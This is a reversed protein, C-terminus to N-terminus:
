VLPYRIDEFQGNVSSRYLGDICLLVPLASAIPIKYPIGECVWARFAELSAAMADVAVSFATAEPPQVGLWEIGERSDDFIATGDEGYIEIRVPQQPHAAMSSCLEIYRGATTRLIGMSFDEVEIRGQFKLRDTVGFGEAVSDPLLAQLVIDLYHSAQTILTGGGAKAISTHWASSSFYDWEREWPVNIRAYRFAGLYGQRVVRILADLAPDYRRQYNIGVKVTNGKLSEVLAVASTASETIPKECLVPLDYRVAKRIMDDHLFHPTAIYIADLSAEALLIDYDLYIQQVDLAQALRRANAESVDCCAALLINPNAAALRAMHAGIGQCGVIGLKLLSKTEM